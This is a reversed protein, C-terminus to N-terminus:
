DGQDSHAYTKGAARHVGRWVKKVRPRRYPEQRRHNIGACWNPLQRRRPVVFKAAPPSRPCHPTPRADGEMYCGLRPITPHGTGGRYDDRSGRLQNPRRTSCQHTPGLV